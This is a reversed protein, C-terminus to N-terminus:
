FNQAVEEEMIFKIGNWNWEPRILLKYGQRSIGLENVNWNWEPRILLNIWKVHDYLDYPKLEM